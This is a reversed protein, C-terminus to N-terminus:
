IIHSQVLLYTPIKFVVTDAEISVSIELTANLGSDRSCDNIHCNQLAVRRVGEDLSFFVRYDAYLDRWAVSDPLYPQYGSQNAPNGIWFYYERYGFNTKTQIIKSVQMKVVVQDDTRSFETSIVDTQLDQCVSVVNHHVDSITDTRFNEAIALPSLFLLLLFSSISKLYVENNLAM